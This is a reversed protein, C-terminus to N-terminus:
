INDRYDSIKIDNFLYARTREIGLFFFSIKVDVGEEAKRAPGELLM